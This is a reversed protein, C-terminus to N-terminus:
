NSKFEEIAYVIELYLKYSNTEYDLQYRVHRHHNCECIADIWLTEPDGILHRDMKIIKMMKGCKNCIVVPLTSIEIV